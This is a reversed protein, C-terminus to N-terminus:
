RMLLRTLSGEPVKGFPSVQASERLRLAAAVLICLAIAPPWSAAETEM